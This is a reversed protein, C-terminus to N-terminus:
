PRFQDPQVVISVRQSTSSVLKMRGSRLDAQLGAATANSAETTIMVPQESEAFQREPYLVLAATRVETFGGDGREQRLRVDGFLTVEQEMDAGELPDMAVTRVVGRQAYTRWPPTESNHIELEPLEIETFADTGDREFHAARRISLRYHLAGDHRYQTIVGDELYVDPEAAFEPPLPPPDSGGPAIFFAIAAFGAALALLALWLPM